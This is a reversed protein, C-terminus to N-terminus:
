ELPEITVRIRKPCPQPLEYKDVYMTGVVRRRNEAEEPYRVMNKTEKELKFTGSFPQDKTM